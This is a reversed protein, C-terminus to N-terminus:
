MNKILRKAIDFIETGVEAVATLRRAAHAPMRYLRQPQLYGRGAVNSPVSQYFPLETFVVERLEAINL